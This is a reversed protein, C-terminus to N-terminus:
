GGVSGELAGHNMITLQRTGEFRIAGSHRLNTLVRSVTESALGLYDAIDYRSMPLVVAAAASDASRAEMEVLFSGVKERATMRGLILMRAQLRSLQEFLTERILRGIQPNTDALTEVDRRRYRAVVTGNLVAETSFQHQGRVGFGFLDGPLLFDVVQRRGDARLLFKRVMGSLLYYWVDAPDGLSYLEDGRECRKVLLFSGMVNPPRPVQWASTAFM